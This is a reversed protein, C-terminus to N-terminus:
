RRALAGNRRRAHVVAALGLGVLALSAPEPAENGFGGGGVLSLRVVGWNGEATGDAYRFGYGTIYFSNDPGVAALDGYGFGNAIIDETVTGSYNPGSFTLRSLTGDTNNKYIHGQGYAMGDACHASNSSAVFTGDTKIVDTRCGGLVAVFIHGDPSVAIDDNFQGSNYIRTDIGSVPNYVHVWGDNANYVIRGDVLTKMGYAGSSTGPVLTSVWTNPNIKLVGAGSQQYFFGDLGMTLGYGGRPGQTITQLTASHLTNTGHVTTNASASHIWFNGNADDRVLRGDALWALGVVGNGAGSYFEATYDSDLNLFPGTPTAVLAAQAGFSMALAAWTAAIKLHISRM